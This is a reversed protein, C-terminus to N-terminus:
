VIWSKKKLLPLLVANHWPKTIGRDYSTKWYKKKTGEELWEDFTKKEYLDMKNFITLTPKESADLEHLTKNVVAIQEEYNPHSIDV